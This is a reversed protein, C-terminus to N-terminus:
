LSLVTPVDACAPAHGVAILLSGPRALLVAHWSNFRGPAPACAAAAWRPTLLRLSNGAMLQARGLSLWGTRKRGGFWGAAPEPSSPSDCSERRVFHAQWGEGYLGPCSLSRVRVEGWLGEWCAGGKAGERAGRAEPRSESGLICTPGPSGKRRGADTIKLTRARRCGTTM